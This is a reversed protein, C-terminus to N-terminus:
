FVPGKYIAVTATVSGSNDQNNSDWYFLSLRGPSLITLELRTGVPFFTKGDDLSGVLSGFLFSFGNKTFLGYDGGLPNGLGNANSTRNDAGASWTDDPSVSITLVEGKSLIIGTQLPVGRSVSNEKAKVEFQFQAM